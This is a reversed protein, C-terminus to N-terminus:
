VIGRCVVTQDEGIDILRHIGRLGEAVLRREGDGIIAKGRQRQRAKDQGVGRGELKDTRNRCANGGTGGNLHGDAELAGMGAIGGTRIEIIGRQRDVGVIVISRLDDPKGTQRLLKGFVVGLRSDGLDDLCETVRGIDRLALKGIAALHFGDAVFHQHGIQLLEVRGLADLDDLHRSEQLLAIDSAEAIVLDSRAGHGIEEGIVVLLALRNQRILQHRSRSCTCGDGAAHDVLVRGETQEDRDIAARGVSRPGVRFGVLDIRIEALEDALVLPVQDAEELREIRVAVDNGTGIDGDLIIRAGSIVVVVVVHEDDLVDLRMDQRSGIVGIAVADVIRQPEIRVIVARDVEEVRGRRRRGSRLRGIAARSRAEGIAHQSDVRRVEVIAALTNGPVVICAEVVRCAVRGEPRATIDFQDARAEIDAMDLRALPHLVRYIHRRGSGVGERGIGLCRHGPGGDGDREIALRLKSCDRQCVTM